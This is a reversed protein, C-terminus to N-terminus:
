RRAVVLGWVEKFGAARCAAACANLTAGTTCVDDVLLAVRKSPPNGKWAFAGAVNGARERRSLGTQSRTQRTRILGNSVALGTAKAVPMALLEAQNRGREALKAPHLPVPVLIAQQLRPYRALAILLYRSLSPALVAAHRYKLARIARPLPERFHAGALVGTLQSQRRCRPCYRGYPTLRHCRPCDPNNILVVQGDCALCWWQGLRDCGVCQAPLVWDILKWFWGVMTIHYCDVMGVAIFQCCFVWVM